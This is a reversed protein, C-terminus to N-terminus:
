QKLWNDEVRYPLGSPMDKAFSLNGIYYKAHDASSRAKPYQRPLERGIKIKSWNHVQEPELFNHFRNCFDSYLIMAGPTPFCQEEIFLELPNLNSRATTKKEQSEVVPIALRTEPFPLEISMIKGLFDGAEKELLQYLRAEPIEEKLPAVYCVTIRTDGPFVPCYEMDNATQIWHTCNKIQYPTQNKKHVAIYKATVWEKIRSRADKNKSLDLEEVYCLIASELEGTFGGQSTLATKGDVYGKTMLLSLAQHFTSKGTNEEESFFFLYPLHETPKQFLSAVWMLLYEGGTGVGNNQCWVNKLVAENLGEGCHNLIKLWTECEFPGEIKPKFRLQAAGRNWERNGSFEPEFPRNVLTWGRLVANGLITSIERDNHNLAKLALKVHEAPETNWDNGTNIVWGYNEGSDTILHRVLDDYNAIEPETPPTVRANFIRRWWGKEEIWGPFGSDSSERKIEIVLRGDKKHEKLITQRNQLYDPIDFDVGLSKAVGLAVNAQAFVFGGKEQEIGDKSRSATKLDPDQNFFCRTYGRSDQDWSPHEHAGETYRRVTWSGKRGPFLFCNQEHDKGITEFIGKLNLETHAKKLDATNTVLLYHDNDFWTNNQYSELKAILALHSDDLKIRPYTGCLEEFEDVLSPEVYKPLNRKRVGAVVDVHDKWNIPIETLTCGQKVLELGDTGVMKRHYFWLNGGCVDVKGKFDFGTKASLLGLIARSLAAHETHNQTQVRDVFVYLHYGKGSTSKRVTVWPIAMARSKIEDLEEATLGNQHNAISDFDYGVWLSTRQVWNWGTLGIAETHAELAWSQRKPNYEPATKAKYPIRYSKWIGTPDSPDSWGHWTRGQYENTVRIGGDQAANVQVEMEPSYLAALDPHTNNKLFIEIAETQLM